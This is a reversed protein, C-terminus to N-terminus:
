NHHRRVLVPEEANINESNKVQAESLLCVGASGSRM